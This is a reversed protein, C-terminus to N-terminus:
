KSGRYRGGGGRGGGGSTTGGGRGAAAASAAPAAVAVDEGRAVRRAQEFGVRARNEVTGEEVEQERRVQDIERERESKRESVWQHTHM